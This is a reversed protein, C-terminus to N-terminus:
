QISFLEVSSRNGLALLKGDSSIAAGWNGGNFWLLPKGSKTDLVVNRSIGETRLASTWFLYSGDPSLIMNRRDWSNPLSGPAFDSNPAYALLKLTRGDIIQGVSFAFNAGSADSMLFPQALIPSDYWTHDEGKIKNTRPISPMLLKIVTPQRGSPDILQVVEDNLKFAHTDTEPPESGNRNIADNVEANWLGIALIRGDLTWGVSLAQFPNTDFERSKWTATDYMRIPSTRGVDVYLYSQLTTLAKSGDHNFVLPSAVVYEPATKALEGTMPNWFQIPYRGGGSGFTIFKGDHTWQLFTNPEVASHRGLDDIRAQKKDKKLDWVIISSSRDVFFIALYRGSPDFTLGMVDIHRGKSSLDIASVKELHPIKACATSESVPIKDMPASAAVVMSDSFMAGIAITALAVIRRSLITRNAILRKSRIM